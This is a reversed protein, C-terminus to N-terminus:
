ILLLGELTAPLDTETIRKAIEVTMEMKQEEQMALVYRLTSEIISGPYLDVSALCSNCTSISQPSYIFHQSTVKIPFEFCHIQLIM